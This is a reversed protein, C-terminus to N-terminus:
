RGRVCRDAFERAAREQWVVRSNDRLGVAHGMSDLVLEGTVPVVLLLDRSEGPDAPGPTACPFFLIGVPTPPGQYSLITLGILPQALDPAVDAPAGVVLSCASREDLLVRVNPTAPVIENGFAVEKEIRPSLPSRVLLYLGAPLLKLATHGATVRSGTVWPLYGGELPTGSEDVSAVRRGDPLPEFGWGDDPSPPQDVAYLPSDRFGLRHVFPRPTTLGFPSGARRVALRALRDDIRQFEVVPQDASM